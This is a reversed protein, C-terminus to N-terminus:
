SFFYWVDQALKGGRAEEKSLGQRESQHFIGEAESREEWLGWVPDRDRWGSESRQEVEAEGAEQSGDNWTFM